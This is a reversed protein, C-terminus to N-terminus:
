RNLVTINVMDSFSEGKETRVTFTLVDVRNGAMPLLPEEVPVYEFSTTTALLTKDKRWSYLLKEDRANSVSGSLTIPEDITANRDVGANVILETIATNQVTLIETSPTPNSSESVVSSLEEVRTSNNESVVTTPTSIVTTIETTNKEVEINSSDLTSMVPAKSNNNEENNSSTSGGGGCASLLLMAMLILYNMHYMIEEGKLVEVDADEL